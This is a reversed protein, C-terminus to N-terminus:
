SLLEIKVIHKLIAFADEADPIGDLNIDAAKNQTETLAAKGFVVQNILVVDRIDIEGDETVDGLTYGLPPDTPADTVDELITVAGDEWTVSGSVAYNTNTGYNYWVHTKSENYPTQPLYHIEYVDNPVASEPIKVLVLLLNSTERYYPTLRAWTIWSYAPTDPLIGCSMELNLKEGFLEAYESRTEVEYRCRSDVNLGFEIANLNVNQEMRVFVPVEYNSNQLQSPTVSVSDISVTVDSKLAAAQLSGVASSCLLGSVLVTLLKPLKKIM